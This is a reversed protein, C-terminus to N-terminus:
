LLIKQYSKLVNTIELEAANIEFYNSAKLHGQITPQTVKLMQATKMQSGSKRYSEIVKHQSSTWKNKFLLILNINSSLLKDILPNKIRIAVLDKTNKMSDILESAERFATGSLRDANRSDVSIELAGYAIGFKILYPHAAEYISNIISYLNDIKILIASIQDGRSIISPSYFDEAFDHNLQELVKYLKNLAKELDGMKAIKASGIIDGIMALYNKFM